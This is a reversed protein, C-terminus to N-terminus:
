GLSQKKGASPTPTPRLDIMKPLEFNKFFPVYEYFRIPPQSRLLTRKTESRPSLDSMKRPGLLAMVPLQRRPPAAPNTAQAAIQNVGMVLSDAPKEGRVIRDIVKGDKMVLQYTARRSQMSAFSGRCRNHTMFLASSLAASFGCSDFIPAAWGFVSQSWL